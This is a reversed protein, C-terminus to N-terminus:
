KRNFISLICGIMDWYSDHTFITIERSPSINLSLNENKEKSRSMLDSTIELKLNIQKKKFYGEMEIMSEADQTINKEGYDM